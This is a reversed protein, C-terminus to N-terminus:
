SVFSLKIVVPRRRALRTMSFVNTINALWHLINLLGIMQLTFVAFFNNLSSTHKCLKNLHFSMKLLWYTLIYRIFYNISVRTICQNRCWPVSGLFIALLKLFDCFCFRICTSASSNGHSIFKTNIKVTFSSNRPLVVMNISFFKHYMNLVM